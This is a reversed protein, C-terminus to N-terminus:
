KHLYNKAIRKIIKDVLSQLDVRSLKHHHLPVSLYKISFDGVPCGFINVFSTLKYSDVRVIYFLDV